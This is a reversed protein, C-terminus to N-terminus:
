RVKLVCSTNTHSLHEDFLLVALIVAMGTELLGDDTANDALM